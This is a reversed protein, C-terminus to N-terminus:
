ARDAVRLSLDYEKVYLRRAPDLVGLKAFHLTRDKISLKATYQTIEKIIREKIRAIVKKEQSPDKIHQSISGIRLRGIGTHPIFPYQESKKLDYFDVKKDARYLGNAVYVAKKVTAHLKALEEKPDDVLWVLEDAREGFFAVDNKLATNQPVFVDKHIKTVENMLLEQGDARMNNVYYLTLRQLEKPSFFNYDFDKPLKLEEKVVVNIHDGIAKRIAFLSSSDSYLQIFFTQESVKETADFNCSPLAILILLIFRLKM